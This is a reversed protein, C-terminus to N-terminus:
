KKKAEFLFASYSGALFRLGNIYPTSVVGRYINVGIRAGSPFGSLDNASFVYSGAEDNLLINRYTPKIRQIPTNKGQANIDYSLSILIFQKYGGIPTIITKLLLGAQSTTWSIKKGVYISSLDQSPLYLNQTTPIVLSASYNKGGMSYKITSNQPYGILSAIKYQQTSVVKLGQTSYPVLSIGAIVSAMPKIGTRFGCTLKPHQGRYASFYIQVDAKNSYYDFMALPDLSSYNVFTPAPETVALTTTYASRAELGPNKKSCSFCSLILLSIVVILKTKM